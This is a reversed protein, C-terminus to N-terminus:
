ARKYKQGIRHICLTYVTNSAPFDGFICVIMDPACTCKQGIRHIDPITSPTAPLSIVLHVTMYPICVYMCIKGVMFMWIYPKPWGKFAIHDCTAMLSWLNGVLTRKCNSYVTNEVEVGGQGEEHRQSHWCKQMLGNLWQVCVSAHAKSHQCM